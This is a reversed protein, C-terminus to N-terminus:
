GQLQENRGGAVSTNCSGADTSEGLWASGTERLVLLHDGDLSAEGRLNQTGLGRQKEMEKRCNNSIQSKLMEKTQKMEGGMQTVM